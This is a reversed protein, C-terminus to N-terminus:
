QFRPKCALTSDDEIDATKGTLITGTKGMLQRIEPYM